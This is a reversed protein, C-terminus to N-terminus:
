GQPQIEPEAVVATQTAEWAKYAQLDDHACKLVMGIVFVDDIFGIVPILDFILDFPWSFYTVAGLIMALTKFPIKRYRGTVYATLVDLLLCIDQYLAKIPGGKTTMLRKWAASIASETKVQDKLTEEAQRCHESFQEEFQEKDMGNGADQETTM